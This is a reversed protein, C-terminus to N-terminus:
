GGSKEFCSESSRYTVQNHPIARYAQGVTMSQHILALPLAELHRIEEVDIRASPTGIFGLYHLGGLAAGIILVGIFSRM